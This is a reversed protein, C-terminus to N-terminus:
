DSSHPFVLVEDLKKRGLWVMFLREVGLAIGASPPLGYELHKIFDDDVPFSKRGMEKKTQNSSHIRQVQETSDNLEQFANCLEVGHWYVEFRDSWGKEDTRALSTLQPPYSFIFTVEEPVLAGEIKELFVRHFLDDWRDELSFYVGFKRCLDQLDSIETQVSLDFDCHERFLERMTVRRFRLATKPKLIDRDIFLLLNEFDKAITELKAYARYWELMWFEPQHIDSTENNRFCRKIEFIKIWGRCLMKKLHFEPSTPLYVTKKQGGIFRETQFAELHEEMGPSSVLSPTSAEEFGSQFFYARLGNIFKHWLENVQYDNEVEVVSSRMPVLLEIANVRGQDVRLVVIDGVRLVDCALCHNEFEQYKETFHGLSIKEFFPWQIKQEQRSLVVGTEKSFDVLRGAFIQVSDFEFM